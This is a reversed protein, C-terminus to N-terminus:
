KKGKKGTFFIVLGIGLITLGALIYLPTKSEIPQYPIAQVSQPSKRQIFSQAKPIPPIGFYSGVAGQIFDPNKALQGIGEGAGKIISEAAEGTAQYFDRAPKITSDIVDQGTDLIDDGVGVVDNVAEEFFDGIDSFIGM